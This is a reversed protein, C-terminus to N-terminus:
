HMIFFVFICHHWEVILGRMPQSPHSNHFGAAAITAMKSVVSISSIRFGL